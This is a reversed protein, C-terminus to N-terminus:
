DPGLWDLESLELIRSDYIVVLPLRLWCFCSCKTDSTKFTVYMAVLSRSFIFYEEMYKFWGFLVNIVKSPFKSKLCISTVVVYQHGVM